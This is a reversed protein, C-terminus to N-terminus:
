SNRRGIVGYLPDENVKATKVRHEIDDFAETQRLYHEILRIHDADDLARWVAVAKTPFCRNSFTIVVPARPRLVRAVERLVKVPAILYQISACVLVADFEADGFPLQPRENLNQVVRETLRSNAELEAENMGLGAVRRYDIEPPLHSVWSSMLDLVAGKAPVFERYLDTVYTIAADDIHTVLRPALYFDDDSTNDVRAFAGPPLGDISDESTKPEQKMEDIM